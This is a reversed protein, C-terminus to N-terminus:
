DVSPQLGTFQRLLTEASPRDHLVSEAPNTPEQVALLRRLEAAAEGRRGQRSLVRALELRIITYNPQSTVGRRLWMEAKGPSGGLLGPLEAYMRGLAYGALACNPDLELARENEARVQAAGTAAAAIGRLRLLSGHAAAWWVHGLPNRENAARLSDAAARAAAYRAVKARGDEERDGRVLLLRARLALREENQAGVRPAAALESECSDLYSAALHYNLLFYRARECSSGPPAAPSPAVALLPLLLRAVAAALTM